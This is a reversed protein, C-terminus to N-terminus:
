LNADFTGYNLLASKILLFCTGMVSEIEVFVSFDGMKHKLHAHLVTFIGLVAMLFLPTVTMETAASLLLMNGDSLWIRFASQWLASLREPYWPGIFGLTM